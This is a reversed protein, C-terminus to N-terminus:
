VLYYSTGYIWMHLASLLIGRSAGLQYSWNHEACKRHDIAIGWTNIYYHHYLVANLNFQNTFGIVIYQLTVAM